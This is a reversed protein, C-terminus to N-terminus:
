KLFVNTRKEEYLTTTEGHGPFIRYDNSLRSIKNLSARMDAKNSEPFDTRGITGKFLTDGSCMIDECMYVVSGSTHGPTRLVAFEFEGIKFTDGNPLATPKCGDCRIKWINDAAKGCLIVDQEDCYVPVSINLNELLRKVGGCHDFHGHTLLVAEVFLNNTKIYDELDDAGYPVDVVVCRDGRILVVSNTQLEGQIFVKIKM